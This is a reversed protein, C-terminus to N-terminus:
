DSQHVGAVAGREFAGSKRGRNAGVRREDGDYNGASESNSSTNYLNAGEDVLGQPNSFLALPIQGLTRTRGNDFSGLITGDQNVEFDYLTGYESGDFNWATVSSRGDQDTQATIYGDSSDFDLAFQLPSEAGTQDRDVAISDGTVSVLKGSTDFSLTGNGIVRDLDTDAEGQVYFRWSTGANSKGELVIALNM